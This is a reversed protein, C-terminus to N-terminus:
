RSARSAQHTRVLAATVAALAVVAALAAAPLAARRRPRRRGGRSRREGRGARRRRPRGAPRVGAGLRRRLQRGRRRLRLRSGSGARDVGGLSQGPVYFRSPDFAAAAAIDAPSLQPAGAGTDYTYSPGPLGQPRPRRDARRGAPDTPRRSRRARDPQPAGGAGPLPCRCPRGTPLQPLNVSPLNPLDPAITQVVYPSRAGAAAAALRRGHQRGPQGRGRDSRGAPRDPLHLHDHRHDGPRQVDVGHVPGTQLAATRASSASRSTPTCRRPSAASWRRPRHRGQEPAPIENVFTVTGGQDVSAVPPRSTGSRWPPRPPRPRARRWSCRRLRRGGALRPGRRRARAACKSPDSRNGDTQDVEM